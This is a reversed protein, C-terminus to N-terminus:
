QWWKWWGKALLWWPGLPELPALAVMCGVTTILCVWSTKTETQVSFFLMFSKIEIKKM